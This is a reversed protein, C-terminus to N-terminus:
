WFIKCFLQDLSFFNNPTVPCSFGFKNEKGFKYNLNFFIFLRYRYQGLPLRNKKKYIYCSIYRPFRFVVRFLEHVTIDRKGRCKLNYIPFKFEKKSVTGTTGISAPCIRVIILPFFPQTLFVKHCAVFLTRSEGGTSGNTLLISSCLDCFRIPQGLYM